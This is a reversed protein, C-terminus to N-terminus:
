PASAEALVQLLESPLRHPAFTRADVCAVGVEGVCVCQMARWCEQRFTLSAGRISVPDATVRLVDDLRAPAQFKIALSRVAFLVGAKLALEHPGGLQARLWENRAREMFRLYNAYYVVGAADTDEYYVRLEIAFPQVPAKGGSM